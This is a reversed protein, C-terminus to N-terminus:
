PASFSIYDLVYIYQTIIVDSHNASGGGGNNLEVQHSSKYQEKGTTKSM